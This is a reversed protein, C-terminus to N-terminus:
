RKGEPGEEEDQGIESTEKGVCIRVIEGKVREPLAIKYTRTCPLDIVTKDARRGKLNTWEVISADIYDRGVAEWDTIEVREGNKWKKTTHKRRIEKAEDDGVVRLKFGTGPMDPYSWDFPVDDVLIQIYGLNPAPPQTKSQEDAM